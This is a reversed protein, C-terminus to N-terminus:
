DSAPHGACATVRSRVYAIHGQMAHAEPGTIEAQIHKEAEELLQDAEDLEGFWSHSYARMSAYGPRRYVLEKSLKGTWFRLGSQEGSEGTGYLKTRYASLGRRTRAASAHYIAEV